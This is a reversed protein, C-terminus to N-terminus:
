KNEIAPIALDKLLSFYDTAPRSLNGTLLIGADLDPVFAVLYNKGKSYFIAYQRGNVLLLHQWWGWAFQGQSSKNYARSKLQLVWNDALIRNQHWQGNQAHLSAIKLLDRPPMKKDLDDWEYRDIELPEFLNEEAFFSLPEETQSELWEAVVEYNAPCYYFGQSINQEAIEKIVQQQPRCLLDSEMKLLQHLGVTAPPGNKKFAYNPLTVMRSMLGGADQKQYIGALTAILLMENEQLSLLTDAVWGPKYEELILTGKKSLLVGSLGLTTDSLLKNVLEEAKQEEVDSGIEWGDSQPKPVKYLYEVSSSFFSTSPQSNEQQPESSCSFFLSLFSVCLFGANIREKKKPFQNM